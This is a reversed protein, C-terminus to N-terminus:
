QFNRIAASAPEASPVQHQMFMCVKVEANTFEPLNLTQKAFSAFKLFALNATAGSGRPPNSKHASSTYFRYLLYILCLVPRVAASLRHEQTGPQFPPLHIMFSICAEDAVSLHEDLRRKDHIDPQKPGAWRQQPKAPVLQTVRTLGATTSVPTQPKSAKQRYTIGKWGYM